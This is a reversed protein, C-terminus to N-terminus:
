LARCTERGVAGPHEYCSTLPLPAGGTPSRVPKPAAKRRNRRACASQRGTDGIGVASYALLLMRSGRGSRCLGRDADQLHLDLRRGRAAPRDRRQGPDARPRPPRRRRAAVLVARARPGGCGRAPPASAPRAAPQRGSRSGRVHGFRTRPPARDGATGRAVHTRGRWPLPWARSVAGCRCWGVGRGTRGARRACRGGPLGRGPQLIPPPILSRPDEPFFGLHEIVYSRTFRGM